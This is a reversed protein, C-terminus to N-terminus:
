NGEDEKEMDGAWKNRCTDSTCVYYLRMNSKDRNVPTQFQVADTGSCAPCIEGERCHALTPDTALDSTVMELAELDQAVSNIYVCADEAEEEYECIKCHYLLKKLDKNEKPYLMNNCQRCFKIEVFTKRKKTHKAILAGIAECDDVTPDFGVDFANDEANWGFSETLAEVLKENEKNVNAAGIEQTLQEVDFDDTGATYAQCLDVVKQWPGSM